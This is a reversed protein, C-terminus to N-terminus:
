IETGAVHVKENPFWRSLLLSLNNQQRREGEKRSLNQPTPSITAPTPAATPPVQFALHESEQGLATLLLRSLWRRGRSLFVGSVAAATARRRLRLQAALSRNKYFASGPYGSHTLM